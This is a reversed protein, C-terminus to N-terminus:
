SGGLPLTFFFTAGEGPNSSVGITGGHMVVIEKALYLGLGSGAIGAALASDGQRFRSFIRAQEKKVIGPGTDTVSFRIDGNQELNLGACLTISGGAPTFKVANGLLNILVQKVREEDASLLPLDDPVNISLLLEKKAALPLIAKVSDAVIKAAQCAKKELKVKGAELKAADLLNNIMQLLQAASERIDELNEQREEESLGSNWELLETFALISTLPTRLEHSVNTLFESQLKNLKALRSNMRSLNNREKQLSATREQVRKELRGYSEALEAAMNYISEKLLGIEGRWVSDRQAPLAFNGQGIKGAVASLRELPATVLRRQLVHISALMVLLVALFLVVQRVMNERLAAYFGEAPVVVSIAGTLEGLRQGEPRHGTIDNKGGLDGHCMLCPQEIYLPVMYRLVRQGDIVDEGWLYPLRAGGAFEALKQREFSDPANAPNRPTLRTQKLRFDTKQNFIDAVGKGVAAPNLGKFEFNGASDYNIKDQSAAIFSRMALFQDVILRATLLFERQQTERQRRITWGLSCVMVVTIMLAMYAM